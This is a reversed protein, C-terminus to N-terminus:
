RRHGDFPARGPGLCTGAHEGPDAPRDDGCARCASAPSSLFRPDVVDVLIRCGVRPASWYSAVLLPRVPYRLHHIGPRVLGIRRRFQGCGSRGVRLPQRCGCRLGGLGRSSPNSQRTAGSAAADIAPVPRIVFLWMPLISAVLAIGLLALWRAVGGLWFPIDEDASVSAVTGVDAATGVTFAFYGQQRHGDAASLNQWSVIYTGNPLSAPLTVVLRHQDAEDIRFSTDPVEDGNQNLLTVGTYTEELPETFRIAIEAPSTAVM